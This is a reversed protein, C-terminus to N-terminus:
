EKFAPLAAVDKWLGDTDPIKAVFSREEHNFPDKFSIKYSLLHISRDNNKRRAGYKIDGKICCGVAALQARIQHFRGSLPEVQLLTYNDFKHIVRYKLKAEKYGPAMVPNVLAKRNKANRSLYHILMDENKPPANEVLVLYEKRIKKARLIETLVAAAGKGMAFLCLGYVPMDIRTIINIRHKLYIELLDQISKDGNLNPQSAIGAPKDAVLLKQSKFVILDSPRIDEIKM